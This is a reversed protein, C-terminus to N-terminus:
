RNERAAQIPEGVRVPRAERRAWGVDRCTRPAVARHAAMSLPVTRGMFLGHHDAPRSWSTFEIPRREWWARPRWSRHPRWSTTTARRWCSCRRGCPAFTSGNDSCSSVAPPSSTRSSLQEVVRSLLHRAYRGDMRVLRPLASRAATLAGLEDAGTSTCCGAFSKATSPAPAGCGCRTRPEARM